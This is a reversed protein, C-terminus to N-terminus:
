CSPSLLSSLLQLGQMWKCVHIFIDSISLMLSVKKENLYFFRPYSSIRLNQFTQTVTFVCFFHYVFACCLFFNEWETFILFLQFCCIKKLLNNVWYSNTRKWSSLSTSSCNPIMYNKWQKHKRKWHAPHGVLCLIWYITICTRFPIMLLVTPAHLLYGLWNLPSQFAAGPFHCLNM